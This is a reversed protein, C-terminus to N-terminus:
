LRAAWSRGYSDKFERELVVVILSAWSDVRDHRDRRRIVGGARWDLCGLNPESIKM